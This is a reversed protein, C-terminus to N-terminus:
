MDALAAFREYTATLFEREAPGYACWFDSAEGWAALSEGAAALFGALAGAARLLPARGDAPGVAPGRLDDGRLVTAGDCVVAYRYSPRTSDMGGARSICIMLPPDDARLAAVVVIM